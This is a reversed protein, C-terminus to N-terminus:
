KKIKLEWGIDKSLDPVLELNVISSEGVQLAIPKSDWPNSNNPDYPDRSIAVATYSGPSVQICNKEGGSLTLSQGNSFGVIAPRINLIGNNEPRQVCISSSASSSLKSEAAHSLSATLLITALVIYLTKNMNYKFPLLYETARQCIPSQPSCCLM